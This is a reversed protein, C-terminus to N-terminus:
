TYRSAHAIPQEAQQIPVSLRGSGIRRKIDLKMNQASPAAHYKELRM